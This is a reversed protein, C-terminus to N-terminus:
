ARPTGPTPGPHRVQADRAPRAEAPAFTSPPARRRALAKRGEDNTLTEAILKPDSLPAAMVASLLPAAMAPARCVVPSPPHRRVVEVAAVEDPLDAGAVEATAIVVACEAKGTQDILHRGGGRIRAMSILSLWPALGPRPPMSGPALTVGSIAAMRPTGTPHVALAGGSVRCEAIDVSQELQHLGDGGLCTQRYANLRCDPFPRKPKLQCRAHLAGAGTGVEHGDVAALAAGARSREDKTVM